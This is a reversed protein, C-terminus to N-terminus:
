YELLHVDVTRKTTHSPNLRQCHHIGNREQYWSCYLSCVSTRGGTNHTDVVFYFARRNGVPNAFEFWRMSSLSTFEVEQM